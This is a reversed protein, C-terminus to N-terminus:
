QATAAEFSPATESPGYPSEALCGSNSDSGTATPGTTSVDGRAELIGGAGEAEGTSMCGVTGQQDASRPTEPTPLILLLEHLVGPFAFSIFPSVAAVVLRQSESLYSLAGLLAQNKTADQAADEDKECGEAAEKDRPQEPLLLQLIEAPSIRAKLGAPIDSVAVAPCTLVVLLTNKM